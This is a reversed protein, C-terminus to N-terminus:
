LYKTLSYPIFYQNIKRICLLIRSNISLHDNYSYRRSDCTIGNIKMGTKIFSLRIFTVSYDNILPIVNVTKNYIVDFTMMIIILECIRKRTHTKKLTPQSVTIELKIAFLIRFSIINASTISNVLVKQIYFMDIYPDDSGSLRLRSTSRIRVHLRKNVPKNNSLHQFVCNNVKKQDYKIAM